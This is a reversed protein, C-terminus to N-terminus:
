ACKEATLLIVDYCAPLGAACRHREYSAQLRQWTEKGMMGRRRGPGLTNAGIAKVATLLARLDPYHLALMKRQTRVNRFGAAEACTALREAAGFDLTHAHGDVEAFAARLEAFTEGGLTSLALRGGPRLVRFAEAFVLEPSCWQVTLSSWWLDFIAPAFPLAEIDAACCANAGAGHADNGASQVSEARKAGNAAFELMAPAFDAAVVCAKPWHAKLLQAGYGTGCGADLITRPAVATTVDLLRECVTRQLAAAADYSRAARSFGARVLHKAPLNM